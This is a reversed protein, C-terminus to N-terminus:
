LRFGLHLGDAELRGTARGTLVTRGLVSDVDLAGPGDADLVIEGDDNLAGLDSARAWRVVMRVGHPVYQALIDDLLPQLRRRISPMTAIAIRVTPTIAQLPDCEGAACAVRSGGLIAKAGLTGSGSRAGALLAPLAVGGCADNGGIRIVAHDVTLDKITFAGGEGALCRLLRELGARTGRACLLEGAHLLLCRKTASPLADDWPLQMWRALFDLWTDPATSPDINTGISRIRDDIQQTTTELVGVIRRLVNGPDNTAGRFVAPLQDVLSVDPYFVRLGHVSPRDDGPPTLITVKLWLWQDQSGHLPVAVPVAGTVPGVVQVASADTPDLSSWISGIRALTSMSTDGAIGHVQEAVHADNTSAFHARLVAGRPLDVDIEARSWGRLADSEPSVLRPTLLVGESERVGSASSSDLRRVGRDGGFWVVSESIALDTVAFADDFIGTLPGDVVDGGANMVLLAWPTAAPVDLSLSLAIRARGDSTLRMVRSCRVTSGINLARILSGSTASIFQLVRGEESLVALTRGCEVVAIQTATNRGCRLVWRQRPCGECDVRMVLTKDRRGLLVWVGGHGDGAIDVVSWVMPPDTGEGRQSVDVSLDLLLTRRDFRHVHGEAADFAWIWAPDIVWRPSVALTGAIEYPGRVLGFEDLWEVSAGPAPSGLRWVPASYADVAIASISGAGRVVRAHLGLPPSCALQSDSGVAFGHLLCRGWHDRNAFRYVRPRTPIM